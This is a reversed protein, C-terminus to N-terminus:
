QCIFVRRTNIREKLNPDAARDRTVVAVLKNKWSIKFDSDDSPVEFISIGKYKSRSSILCGQISYNVGLM